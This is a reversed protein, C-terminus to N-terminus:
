ISCSFLLPLKSQALCPAAGAPTVEPFLLAPFPIQPQQKNAHPLDEPLQQLRPQVDM